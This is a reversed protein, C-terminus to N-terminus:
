WYNRFAYEKLYTIKKNLNLSKVYISVIDLGFSSLLNILQDDDKTFNIRFFNFDEILVNISIKLDELIENEQEDKKWNNLLLILNKRDKNIFEIIWNEINHDYIYTLDINHEQVFYQCAAM